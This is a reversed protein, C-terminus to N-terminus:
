GKNKELDVRRRTVFLFHKLVSDANPFKDFLGRDYLLQITTKLARQFFIKEVSKKNYQLNFENFDKELFSLHSNIKLLNEDLCGKNKVDKENTPEFNTTIKEDEKYKDHTELKLQKINEHQVKDRESIILDFEPEWLNNYFNLAM